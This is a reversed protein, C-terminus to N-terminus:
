LENIKQDVLTDMYTEEQQALQERLELIELPNSGTDSEL